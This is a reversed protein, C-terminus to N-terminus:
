TTSVGFIKPSVATVINNEAAEERQMNFNNELHAQADAHGQEAAKWYWAAANARDHQVGEGNEYM